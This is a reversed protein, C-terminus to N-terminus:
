QIEPDAELLDRLVARVVRSDDVLLIRIM